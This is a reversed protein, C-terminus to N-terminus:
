FPESSIIFQTYTPTWYFVSFIPFEMTIGWGKRMIILKFLYIYLADLHVDLYFM